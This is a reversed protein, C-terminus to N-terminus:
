YETTHLITCWCHNSTCCQRSHVLQPSTGPPQLVGGISPMFSCFDGTGAKRMCRLSRVCGQQAACLTHVLPPLGAPLLVGKHAGRRPRGLRCVDADVCGVPLLQSGLLLTCRPLHPLGRSQNASCQQSHASSHRAPQWSRPAAPSSPAQLVVHSEKISLPQLPAHYWAAPPAPRGGIARSTPPLQMVLHIKITPSSAAATLTLSQQHSCAAAASALRGAHTATVKCIQEPCSHPLSCGTPRAALPTLIAVAAAKHM